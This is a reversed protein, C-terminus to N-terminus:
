RCKADSHYRKCYRCTMKKVREDDKVPLSKCPKIIREGICSPVVEFITFILSPMLLYFHQRPSIRSGVTIKWYWNQPEHTDYMFQLARPPFDGLLSHYKEVLPLIIAQLHQSGLHTTLSFRLPFTMPDWNRRQVISETLVGALQMSKIGKTTEVQPFFLVFRFRKAM